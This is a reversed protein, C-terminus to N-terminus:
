RYLNLQTLVALGCSLQGGLFVLAQFPSIAGSALPRGRTREVLKDLDRDWLDNITCGAGRMLFAGVGFLAAMRATELLTLEPTAFAAMSMSWTCPLLLLWTGAPKDIRALHAYPILSPPLKAVCRAALSAHPPPAPLSPTPTASTTHLNRHRDLKRHSVRGRGWHLHPALTLLLGCSASSSSSPGFHLKQTSIFKLLKVAPRNNM